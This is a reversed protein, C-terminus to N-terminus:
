KIMNALARDIEKQFMELPMAGRLSLIGKVKSPNQPDKAALIFGPVATIGLKAAMEVEAAVRKAHKGSNLCEEYKLLDLNLAAAYSSLKDLLDQKAMLQKHTEWLKGQDEACHAAEAAKSASKHIPLPMDAIAYDMKNTNVYLM